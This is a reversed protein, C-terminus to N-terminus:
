LGLDGIDHLLCDDDDTVDESFVWVFILAKECVDTFIEVVEVVGLCFGGYNPDDTLIDLDDVVSILQHQVEDLVELILWVYHLLLDQDATHLKVQM